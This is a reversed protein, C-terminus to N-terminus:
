CPGLWGRKKRNEIWSFIDNSPRGKSMQNTYVDRVGGIDEEKNECVM